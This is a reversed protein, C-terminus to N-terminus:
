DARACVAARSSVAVGRRAQRLVNRDFGNTCYALSIGSDPDCWGIQGGAGGHGFIRASGTRGFGIYVREEGGAIVIGLGRNAPKRFWPELFEPNRIRRADRLMEEKWIRSGDPACGTLLAQYFLALDGASMVGGGGPVGAELVEPRNFGQIADETVEGEPIEPYGLKEREEASLEQGVHVVRAARGHLARPLGVHLDELGLPLAIRQRVFDRFELGSRREILEAVVWMSSTSHYEFRTGPEWNLRWQSFRELRRARDQWEHQPYPAYPFGATHTLLQEVRVVDKGNTGFEPIVDAVREDLGLKGEQILLWAASSTIAKTCSFVLYLTDDSADGFTRMGALSGNRALAVQCSPLLGDQVERAAREFLAELREPDVGVSEPSEAFFQRAPM